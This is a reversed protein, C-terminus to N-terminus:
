KEGGMQYKVDVKRGRGSSLVGYPGGRPRRQEPVNQWSASMADNFGYKYLALVDRRDGGFQPRGHRGDQSGRPLAKPALRHGGTDSLKM